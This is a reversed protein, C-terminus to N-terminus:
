PVENELGSAEPETKIVKKPSKSPLLVKSEM